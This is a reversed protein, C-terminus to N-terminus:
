NVQDERRYWDVSEMAEPNTLQLNLLCLAQMASIGYYDMTDKLCYGDISVSEDLTQDMWLQVCERIRDDYSRDIEISLLGAYILSMNERTQLLIQLKRTDIHTKQGKM